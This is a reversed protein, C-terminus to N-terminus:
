ATLIGANRQHNQKKLLRNKRHQLDNIVTESPVIHKGNNSRKYQVARIAEETMLLADTYRKEVHEYFKAMEIYAFLDRERDIMQKWVSVADQIRGMRKYTLSLHKSVAIWAVSSLGDQVLAKELCFFSRDWEGTVALSKGLGFWEFGHRCEEHPMRVMRCVKSALVALSVIDEANHFLVPRMREIQIGRLFDFYVYPILEGPIDEGRKKNLIHNEITSLSCDPLINKWFRRASYLLDIHPLDLLSFRLRNLLLRSQLIPADFRKGNYSAIVPFQSILNVMEDLVPREEDYDRMLYQRIRFGDDEFFGVGILFPVTGTGGALGTTETDFFLIDQTRFSAFIKDHNVTALEIGSIYIAAEDMGDDKILIERVGYKGASNHIEEVGLSTLFKQKTEEMRHRKEKIDTGRVIGPINLLNNPLPKTQPTSAPLSESGSKGTTHTNFRKLKEYLASM